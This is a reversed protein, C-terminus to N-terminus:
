KALRNAVLKAKYNTIISQAFAVKDKKISEFDVDTSMLPHLEKLHENSWLALDILVPMLSIGSDTLLYLNTKKNNPRKTKTIIGVNELQKLKNSLINTAISESSDMFEKFTEKGEFLMQKILVLMWKDGLIDLATTIPCACRFTPNM